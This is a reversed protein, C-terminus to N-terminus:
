VPQAVLRETYEGMNLGPMVEQLGCQNHVEDAWRRITKKALERDYRPQATVRLATGEGWEVFCVHLVRRGDSVCLSSGEYRLPESWGMGRLTSAAVGAAMRRAIRSEMGQGPLFLMHYVMGPSSVWALSNERKEIPVCACMRLMGVSEPVQERDVAVDWDSQDLAFLHAGSDVAVVLLPETIPLANHLNVLGCLAQGGVPGLDLYHLETM